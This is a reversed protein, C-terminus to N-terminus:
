VASFESDCLLRDICTFLISRIMELKGLDKVFTKGKIQTCDSRFYCGKFINNEPDLMKLIPRAYYEESATFAYVDHEKALKRLFGDVGPRKRVVVQHVVGDNTKISVEVGNVKDKSQGAMGNRGMERGVEAHILTEDIDLVVRLRRSKLTSGQGVRSGGCCSSAPNFMM